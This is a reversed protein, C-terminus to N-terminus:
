SDTTIHHFFKVIVEKWGPQVWTDNHNGDPFRVLGDHVDPLNLYESPLLGDRQQQTADPYRSEVYVAGMKKVMNCPILTDADGVLFLMAMPPVIGRKEQKMLHDVRMLNPYINSYLCLPVLKHLPVSMRAFLSSAMEPMSTFTNEVLLGRVRGYNSAKTVLEIAVAGGLSRGFVVIQNADLDPRCVCDAFDLTCQADAALGAESPTGESRGYGRYDIIMVNANVASTFLECLALRYGINGANGHFFIITPSSKRQQLDPLLLLYGHIKPGSPGDPKLEVNEWCQYGYKEPSDLLFKATAPEEPVYILNNELINIGLTFLSLLWFLCVVFALVGTLQSYLLILALSAVFPIHYLLAQRIQDKKHTPRYTYMDLMPWCM